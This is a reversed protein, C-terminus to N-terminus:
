SAKPNFVVPALLTATPEKAKFALVVADSLTAIPVLENPNLVVPLKLM